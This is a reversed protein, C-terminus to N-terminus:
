NVAVYKYILGFSFLIHCAVDGGSIVIEGQYEGDAEGGGGAEVNTGAAADSGAAGNSM